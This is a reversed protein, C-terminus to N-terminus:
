GTGPVAPASALISRAAAADAQVQAKLADLGDFRKEPRLHSILAVRLIQGYLDKTTDFLNVELLIDRGDVTPRRGFNAVGNMLGAAPDAAQAMADPLVAAQVAYVGHAPHLTDALRLNATPFGITRGRKDGHEVVGAVEWWRGLLRAAGPMDGGVLLDRIRTSSFPTGDPGRVPDVPHVAFGLHRGSTALGEVSGSRGRGFKFDQGVAVHRVGLSEALVHTTFVDPTLAAFDHDFRQLLLWDAGEAAILRSKSAAPTLRFPPLDPRFHARPHPEFTVVGFPIGEARALDRATAIVARHGPHMGDFNGIAVAGGRCDAPVARHDAFIQM